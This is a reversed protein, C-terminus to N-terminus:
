QTLDEVIVDNTEKEKIEEETTEVHKIGRRRHEYALHLTGDVGQIINGYTFEPREGDPMDPLSQDTEERELYLQYPWTEGEDESMFLGLINRGELIRESSVPNVILVLNGSDTRVMDFAANPNPIDTQKAQSWSFGRDRSRTEYIKGGQRPRLYALLEGDELEVVTPHTMGLAGMYGEEDHPVIQDGGVIPPLDGPREHFDGPILFFYPKDEPDSYAPLIWRDEEELYLPKNKFYIGRRESILELDMWTEGGDKSRKYFPRSSALWDGYMVPSTMWLDGNPGEFLVPCGVARGEIHSWRESDGWSDAGDPLRAGYVDQDRNGEGVDGAFWAALLDGNPLEYITSNKHFVNGQSCSDSHCIWREQM